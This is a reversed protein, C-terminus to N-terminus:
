KVRNKNWADVDFIGKRLVCVGDCENGGCEDGLDVPNSKTALHVHVNGEEDFIKM